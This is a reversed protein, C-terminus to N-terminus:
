RRRFAKGRFQGAGSRHAQPTSRNVPPLPAVGNEESDLTRVKAQKITFTPDELRGMTEYALIGGGLVLFTIFLTIVNKRISLEAINM